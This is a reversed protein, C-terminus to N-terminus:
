HHGFPSNVAPDFLMMHPRAPGVTTKKQVSDFDVHFGKNLTMGGNEPDVDVLFVGYGTNRKTGKPLETDDWTSLLSNTVYLRKGDLSLRIMQAQPIDVKGTPPLVQRPRIAAVGLLGGRRLPHRSARTIRRRSAAYLIYARFIRNAVIMRTLGFPPQKKFTAWNGPSIGWEEGREGTGPM